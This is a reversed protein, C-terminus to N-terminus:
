AARPHRHRSLQALDLAGADPDHTRRGDADFQYFFVLGTGDPNNPFFGPAVNQPIENMATKAAAQKPAFGLM